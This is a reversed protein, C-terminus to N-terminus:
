THLLCVYFFKNVKEENSIIISKQLLKYLGIKTGQFFCNLGKKVVKGLINQAEFHNKNIRDIIDQELGYPM